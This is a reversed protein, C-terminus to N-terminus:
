SRVALGSVQFFEVGPVEPPAETEKLVERMHKRLAVEDVVKFREPVQSADTVKFDWRKTTAIGNPRSATPVVQKPLEVEPLSAIASEATAAAAAAERAEELLEEAAPSEEAEALERAEREEREAQERKARAEAEQREREERAKREREQRERELREEEERRIREQEATYSGLKERIIEDAEEYPAMAAKFDANIQKVTANLPDVYERRKAEAAKRRGQIDRLLQGAIDASAEDNVQLAEAQARAEQVQREVASVAEETGAPVLELNPAQSM